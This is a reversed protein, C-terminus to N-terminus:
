FHVGFHSIFIFIACMFMTLLNTYKGWKRDEWKRDGKKGWKRDEICKNIHFNSIIKRTYNIDTITM